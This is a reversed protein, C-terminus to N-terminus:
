KKTELKSLRQELEKQKSIMTRNGYVLEQYIYYQSVLASLGAGVLFSSVRQFFGAGTKKAVTPAPPASLDASKTDTALKRSWQQNRYSKFNCILRFM